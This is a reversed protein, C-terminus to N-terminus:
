AATLERINYSQTKLDNSDAIVPTLYTSFHNAVTSVERNVMFDMVKKIVPGILPKDVYKRLKKV